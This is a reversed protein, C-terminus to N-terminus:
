YKANYYKLNKFSDAAGTVFCQKDEVNELGAGFVENQFNIAFNIHSKVNAYDEPRTDPNYYALFTNFYYKYDKKAEELYKEENPYYDVLRPGHDGMIIVIPKEGGKAFIKDLFELTKNDAFKLYELYFERNLIFVDNVMPDNIDSNIEGDKNFVYPAHPMLFHAFFLHKSGSKSFVNDAYDFAEQMEKAKNESNFNISYYLATNGIFLEAATQFDDEGLTHFNDIVGRKIHIDMPWSNLYYIKYGVKKALAFLRAKNIARSPTNYPLSQVYCANLFSPIAAVTKTYNSEMDKFVIFGKDELKKLFDDNNTGLHKLTRNGAHADLLIIYINRTPNKLGGKKSNFAAKSFNPLSFNERIVMGAANLFSLVLLTIGFPRLFDLVKKSDLFKIVVFGFVCLGIFVSVFAPMTNFNLSLVCIAILSAIISKAEDKLVVKFAFFFVYFLAMVAFVFLLAWLPSIRTFNQAWLYIFKYASIISFLFVQGM